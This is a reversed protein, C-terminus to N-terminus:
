RLVIPVDYKRAYELMNAPIAALSDSEAQVAFPKGGSITLESSNEGHAWQYAKEYLTNPSELVANEVAKYANKLDQSRITTDGIQIDTFEAPSTKTKLEAYIKGDEKSVVVKITNSGSVTATVSIEEGNVTITQTKKSKDFTYTDVDTEKAKKNTVLMANLLAQSDLANLSNERDNKGKSGPEINDEKM